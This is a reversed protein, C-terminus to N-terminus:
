QTSHYYGMTPLREPSVRQMRESSPSILYAEGNRHLLPIRRRREIFCERMDQSRLAYSMLEAPWAAFLNDYTQIFQQRYEGTVQDLHSIVWCLADFEWDYALGLFRLDSTIYPFFPFQRCSLARYQRQCRDPGLCALLLM